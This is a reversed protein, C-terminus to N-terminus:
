CFVLYLIRTIKPAPHRRYHKLQRPVPWSRRSLVLVEYTPGSEWLLRHNFLCSSSQTIQFFVLYLISTIKPTLRRRYHKLHRPVPWSRRLLVLVEYTPDSEWLLRHSFLSSSSQTIQFFVLYLIRTIKLTPRRRYHKLHRPAPWERRSSCQSSTVPM